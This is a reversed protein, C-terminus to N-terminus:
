AARGEASLLDTFWEWQLEGIIRRCYRWVSIHRKRQCHAAHEVVHDQRPVVQSLPRVGPRMPCVALQHVCGAHIRARERWTIACANPRGGTRQTSTMARLGWRVGVIPMVACGLRVRLDSVQSGNERVVGSVASPGVNVCLLVSLCSVRTCVDSSLAVTHPSRLFYVRTATCPSSGQVARADRSPVGCRVDVEVWKSTM